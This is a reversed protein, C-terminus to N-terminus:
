WRAPGAWETARAPSSSRRTSLDSQWTGEGQKICVVGFSESVASTRALVLRGDAEIHEVGTASEYFMTRLEATVTYGAFPAIAEPRRWRQWWGHGPINSFTGIAMVYGRRYWPHGSSTHM